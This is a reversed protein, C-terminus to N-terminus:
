SGRGPRHLVALTAGTSPRRGAASSSESRGPRPRAARSRIAGGYSTMSSSCRQAPRALAGCRPRARGGSSSRPRRPSARRTARLRRGPGPPRARSTPAGGPSCRGPRCPACACRSRRARARPPSRPPGFGAVRACVGAGLLVPQLERARRVRVEGGDEAEERVRAARGPLRERLHGGLLRGRLDIVVLARAVGEPPDGVGVADRRQLAGQGIGLQQDGVAM